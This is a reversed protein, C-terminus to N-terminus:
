AIANKIYAPDLLYTHGDQPLFLPAIDIDFTIGGSYIGNIDLHHKVSAGGKIIFKHGTLSPFHPHNTRDIIEIVHPYAYNFLFDRSIDFM